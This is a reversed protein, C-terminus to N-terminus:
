QCQAATHTIDFILCLFWGPGAREGQRLVNIDEGSVGGDGGCQGPM